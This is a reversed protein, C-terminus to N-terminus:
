FPSGSSSNTGLYGCNEREGRKKKKKAIEVNRIPGEIGVRGGQVEQQTAGCRRVMSIKM